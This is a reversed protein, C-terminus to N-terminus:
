SDRNAQEKIRECLSEFRDNSLRALKTALDPFADRFQHVLASKLPRLFRVQFLLPGFAEALMGVEEATLEQQEPQRRQRLHEHLIRIEQRRFHSIRQSLEPLTGALARALLRKFVWPRCRNLNLPRAADALAAYELRSFRLYSM